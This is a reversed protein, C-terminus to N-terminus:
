KLQAHLEGHEALCTSDMIDPPPLVLCDVPREGFTSRVSVSAAGGQAPDLLWRIADMRGYRAAAHLATEGFSDVHNVDDGESGNSDDGANCSNRRWEHLLQAVNVHGGRCAWHLARRGGSDVSRLVTDTTIDGMVQECACQLLAEAPEFAGREAARHLPSLAGPSACHNRQGYCAHGAGARWLVKVCQAHGQSSFSSAQYLAQALLPAFYLLPLVGLTEGERASEGAGVDGRDGGVLHDKQM